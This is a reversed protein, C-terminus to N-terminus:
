GTAALLPYRALPLIRLDLHARESLVRFTGAVLTSIWPWSFPLSTTSFVMPFASIARPESVPEARRLASPLQTMSVM